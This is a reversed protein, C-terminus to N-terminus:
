RRCHGALPQPPWALAPMQAQGSQGERPAHGAMQAQPPFCPEPEVDECAADGAPLSIAAAGWGFAKTAACHAGALSGEKSGKLCWIGSSSSIKTSMWGVEESVLLYGRLRSSGSPLAPSARTKTGKHEWLRASLLAGWTPPSHTPSHVFWSEEQQRVQVSHCKPCTVNEETGEAKQYFSGVATPEGGLECFGWLWARWPRRTLTEPPAGM